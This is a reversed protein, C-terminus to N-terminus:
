GQRYPIIIDNKVMNTVIDSLILLDGLAALPM